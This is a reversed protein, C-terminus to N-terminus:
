PQCKTLFLTTKCKEKIIYVKLTNNYKKLDVFKPYAHLLKNACYKQCKPSRKLLVNHYVLSSLILNEKLDKIKKLTIQM